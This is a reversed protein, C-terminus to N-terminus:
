ESIPHRILNLIAKAATVSANKKLALHIQTFTDILQQRATNDSLQNLLAQSLQKANVQEQLFEPVLRKGALLNPLAMHAVNVLHKLVFFSLSPMKYAVVMPCKFLAAELTITGSGVLAIDAAALIQHSQQNPLITIPLDPVTKQIFRLFQQRRRENVMSTIVHLNPIKQRCLAATEAFIVALQKIEAHRSGPLLALVTSTEPLNLKQRAAKHDIHIPIDDALPHGICTVPIQNKEYIDVEFPFLVLMLDVARKIKHIRKQRWAWVTPSVYHVVPIGAKKLMIELGLNFDPSDIGIFVDPRDALLRRHLTRRIRILEPLRKLPDILGMVALRETPFIAQCGAAVMKPGAIGYAILDPHYRKLANILNAGLTDGSYDGTVLAIKLPM